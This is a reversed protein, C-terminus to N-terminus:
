RKKERTTYVFESDGINIRDGDNLRVRQIKQRNVFTGTRSGSDTLEYTDRLKNIVTHVPDIKPDKFLYIENKPSSGLRIPTQTFSFEKGRLPGVTVRLWAARTLMETIGILLGVAAGVIGLGIARSLEAGEMNARDSFLFYIPDFVLGGLLGGLIGGIFGNLLLTRNKLALGQGLGMATGALSWALSRRFMQLIFAPLNATPDASIQGVAFYALGGVIVSVLGGGIGAALGFFACRLARKFTRCILGEIGGVMLGILGAVCPFLLFFAANQSSELRALNLNPTVPTAPPEMRIAAAIVGKGDAITDGFVKVISDVRLDDVTYGVQSNAHGRIKTENMVVLVPIGSVIIRRVGPTVNESDVQEVRGTFMVGDQLYPELAAWALVAGLAGALMLYFWTSYLFDFRKKEEIPQLAAPGANRQQALREDIAADQLEEYSIVIRESPQESM